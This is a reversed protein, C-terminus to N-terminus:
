SAGGSADGGAAAGEAVTSAVALGEAVTSAVALGEAVASAVAVSSTHTLSLHWCEVGKKSALLAAEGHFTLQPAGDTSRIVEIDQFSAAGLGVGLAKLAAEKAAFRAALRLAPDVARAAYQREGSTFLRQAMHPRRSLVKRFRDVDVADVGIGLVAL